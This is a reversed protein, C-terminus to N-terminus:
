QTPLPFPNSPPPDLLPGWHGEWIDWEAQGGVLTKEQPASMGHVFPGLSHSLPRGHPQGWVVAGEPWSGGWSDSMPSASGQGPPQPLLGWCEGFDSSCMQEM